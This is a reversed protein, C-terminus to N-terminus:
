LEPAKTVAATEEASFESDGSRPVSEVLADPLDMFAQSREAFAPSQKLIPIQLQLGVLCKVLPPFSSCATMVAKFARCVLSSIEQPSSKIVPGSPFCCGLMPVLGSSM